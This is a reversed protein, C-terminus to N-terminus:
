YPLRDGGRKEGEKEEVEEEEGEEEEEEKERGGGRERERRGGMGGGRWSELRSEREGGEQTRKVVAVELKKLFQDTYVSPDSQPMPSTQAPQSLGTLSGRVSIHEENM